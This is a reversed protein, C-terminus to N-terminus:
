GGQPLELTIATGHDGTDIRVRGDYADLVWRVFWLGLGQGHTLQTIEVEREVVAREEEPIGPGDDAIRLAVRDGRVEAAVDVSAPGASHVIANEVLEAVAHRLQRGAAVALGDPVSVSVDAEPHAARCAAVVDAVVTALDVTTPADEREDFLSRTRDLVDNVESLREGVADVDAALADRDDPDDAGRLRSAADFLLQAEHRLNHRVLRNVVSLKERQRALATARIRQVDRVGILVHAFASVALLSAAAYTPVAVDALTMLLLVLGLVVTGFAAWGAVRLAHRADVDSRVLLVAAVVLVLSVVAGLGALALAPLPGAGTLLRRATAAFPGLGILGIAGGAALEVADARNM